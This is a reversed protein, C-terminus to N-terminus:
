GVRRQRHHVGRQAGPNWLGRLRHRRRQIRCQRDVDGIRRRHVRQVRSVPRGRRRHHCQRHRHRVKGYRLRQRETYVAGGGSTASNNAFSDNTLSLAGSGMYLIAGGANSCQNAAFQAHDVSLAGHSGNDDVQIAGGNAGPAANHTFLANAVVLASGNAYVAGGSLASQNGIFASGSISTVATASPSAFLGGGGLAPQDTGTTANSQLSSNSILLSKFDSAAYVGGGANVTRNGILLSGIVYDNGSYLAVGGGQRGSTNGVIMSQSVLSFGDDTTAATPGPRANNLLLGGGDFTANNGGVFSSQIKLDGFGTSKEFLDVGGGDNASNNAILCTTITVDGETSAYIGGGGGGANGIIQSNTVTLGARAGSSVEAVAGGNGNTAQNHSLVSNLISLAEASLIAGGDDPAYGKSLTLGDITVNKVTATGDDIHFLRNSGGGVITLLSAGPGNIYTDDTIVIETNLTVKTTGAPLTFYIGELNGPHAVADTHGQAIADRLSGPGSDAASTVAIIHLGAPAIRTELLELSSARFKM